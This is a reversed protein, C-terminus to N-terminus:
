SVTRHNAIARRKIEPRKVLSGLAVVIHLVCGMEPRMLRVAVPEYPVEDKSRVDPYGELTLHVPYEDTEIIEFGPVAAWIFGQTCFTGGGSLDKQEPAGDIAYIAWRSM